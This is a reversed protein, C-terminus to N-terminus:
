VEMVGFRFADERLWAPQPEQLWLYSSEFSDFRSPTGNLIINIGSVIAGASVTVPSSDYVSDTASENTNWYEDQGPSPIPVRLPGVSSGGMFSSYISEVEVTYTGPPVPIDYAGVKLPDHSGFESGPNTGTLSQGPNSTFLYGSVVSVAVRTPKTTDRAIVNVGQVPTVGDSFLIVGRITGYISDFPKQTPPNTATEPYLRSIWALDDPALTPLGATSRAQCKAIPFMIPLGALDDTACAGTQSYLVQLNIQSHDLGSFHGFEHVFAEDFEAATMEWNYNYYDDIGDQYRGNMVALASLIRGTTPDLKCQGSLGIVLSDGTLANLTSGDADFVIPSQTGDDCSGIVADLEQPTSVDGDTFVGTSQISGARNYSITATPVDTWVQFMSSVRAIGTANDVVVTGDPTRSLPGGDTWYKVPMGAPDWIFPQGDVGYNPGGVLMPGGARAVWPLFLVTAIALALLTGLIWNTYNTRPSM